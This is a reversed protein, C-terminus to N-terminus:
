THREIMNTFADEIERSTMGPRSSENVVIAGPHVNLTMSRNNTVAGALQQSTFNSGISQRLFSATTPDIVAEGRHLM